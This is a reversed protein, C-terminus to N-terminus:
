NLSDKTYDAEGSQELDAYLTFAGCRESTCSSPEYYYNGSAPTPTTAVVSIATSDPQSLADSDLGRTTLVDLGCDGTYVGSNNEGCTDTTTSGSPYHGFDAYYAELQTAVSNIDTRRETDRAREQVGQFTNLVLAALIGIVVIVILLEVITFGAQNKKYQKLMPAWGGNLKNRIIVLFHNM